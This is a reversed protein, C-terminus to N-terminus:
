VPSVPCDHNSTVCSKIRSVDIGIERLQAIRTKTHSERAQRNRRQYYQQKKREIEYREKRKAPSLDAATLWTNVARRVQEVTLRDPQEPDAGDYRQRMRACFLWSAQTLYFHRHVARWGRVQYHDMGLEDKAVRFCREVSWRSFAVRLLWRFTVKGEGPVRNAVFYKIEGTLVNRAVILCHRRGPLGNEDKRWFMAWKVEWVEPGRDTDKIRYPQWAQNRFVPSHKVLNRVESSPCHRAVRPYKRQRGRKKSTKPGSHLVLPERVWGHFDQPVEAVFVQRREHLGDLFRGDRGYLEDFTWAAVYVGNGLTRDIQELAIQPKTRFEVEDPVGNEQRRAADHAWEEPLYLSSDLLCQFDSTMYSLHVGVVCNDVKGRNGNWQRAVGVTGKGSKAVGSEDVVGIAEPDGHDKAVIHQCRDLMKEEDWKISELFRQLTRPATGFQLAIGEATKHHVNSLQGQIYVRLLERPERRGFCDRFFALFVVLHRGLRAIQRLTM